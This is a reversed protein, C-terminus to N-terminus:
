FFTYWVLTLFLGFPILSLVAYGLAGAKKHNIFEDRSMAALVFPHDKGPVKWISRTSVRAAEKVMALYRASDLWEAGVDDEDPPGADVFEREEEPDYRFATDVSGIALLRTSAYIRQESYRFKRQPDGDAAKVSEPDMGPPMRVPERDVPVKGPGYWVSHDCPIVEAFAPLVACVGTGDRLLFPEHSAEYGLVSWRHSEDAKRPAEISEELKARYWVCEIGTLPAKLTQGQLSESTGEFAVFGGAAQGIGSVKTAAVRAALKGAKMATNLAAGTLGLLIASIMFFGFSPM